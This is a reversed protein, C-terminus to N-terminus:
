KASLWEGLLRVFDMQIANTKDRAYWLHLNKVFEDHTVQPNNKKYEEIQLRIAEPRPGWTGVIEEGTENLCILKPISRSGNTLFADMCEPNEDRFILNLEIYSSADAIKALVPICQASDGCWAETIVIWKMKKSVTKLLAELEPQVVCQKDIRKMRQANIQTAAIHEETQEGSTLGEEAMKLVLVKYSEYSYGAVANLFTLETM